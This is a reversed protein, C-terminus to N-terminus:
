KRVEWQPNEELIKIIKQHIKDVEESKLTKEESQYIIHFALNEKGSSIGEGSYIDFLDVDRVIEGGGVNIKNMVEIVKTGKPVLVALDRVSSPYPSIPKYEQEEWAMKILKDFDFDFVFVKEKLELQSLIRPNIEGLFGIEEGDIKIEALKGPHWIKIKSEEPTAKFDDYWVESIGLKNLLADVIGKLLYFGKNGLNRESLVGTLSKKESYETGFIKGIEFLKIKEFRKLNEKVNEILNPTLSPRLFKHFHNVPNELELVEQNNWGFIDKQNQSIFSYNYVEKFGLEKLINQCNETWFIDKNKEPPILIGKPFISPVNQYGLIRGIEEILDEQINIDMRRTPVKVKSNKFKFGLSELISKAKQPSVKIKLIEELYNLDLNIEKEKIKKPYFDVFCQAAKGGAIKEALHAFRKQAFVTLNPDIGNEFRWSADTKLKLKKSGRRITKQNFNATEVVIRKTNKDIGTSEGGKIGAIALPKEQDAILLIDKDLKYTKDDLTKIKEGNEARRVIIKEGSIKDLDFAHIPQGTELMVFNGIDVINNIAQLGCNELYNKLWLPSEEVKLDFIVKATYRSCDCKVELDIFDKTKEKKDEKFSVEPLKFKLGSIVASERAIGMHSLCDPARNPLVDIDLLWDKEKKEINEVEFSHINLFGALKEPKALKGSVYNKLWNYSFIM